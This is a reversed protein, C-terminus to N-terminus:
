PCNNLQQNWTWVGAGFGLVGGVAAGIPGGIAGEGGGIGAGIAGGAVYGGYIGLGTLIGIPDLQEPPTAGGACAPPPPPPPPACSMAPEGTPTNPSFLNMPNGADQLVQDLSPTPTPTPTPLWQYGFPDIFSIPNNLVYGYLNPGGGAFGIPDQSVFRQFTPSYYRARYFYLGTADNERGTFQYPNASSGSVTTNGFPEYTYSTNLAGTSDVLGITSGLADTLFAMTGSSDTRTFYEDIGLGTLLNATVNPPSAGDLEAVPNLGDYLFQTIVGNVNRGTRRGFPGYVFSASVAGSIGSLHNRADWTYTNTGDSLLNGNADYSLATGNFATMENGANFTNGSVAQPLSVAALSGGMSSRREDADYTYALNGLQNNGATYTIGTVRSDADYTYALSVGNPLTLQTRRNSGQAALWFGRSFGSTILLRM